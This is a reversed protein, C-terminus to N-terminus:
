HGNFDLLAKITTNKNAINLFLLMEEPEFVM